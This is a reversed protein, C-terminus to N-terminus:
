SVCQLKDTGMNRSVAELVPRPDIYGTPIRQAAATGGMMVLITCVKWLKMKM